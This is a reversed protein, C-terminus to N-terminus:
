TRFSLQLHGAQLLSRFGPTQPEGVGAHVGSSPPIDARADDQRSKAPPRAATQTKRSIAAKVGGPGKTVPM